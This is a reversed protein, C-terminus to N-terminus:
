GAATPTPTPLTATPAPMTVTPAPITTTPTPVTATPTPVTATPTPVTATPTPVTATPEPLSPLKVTIRRAAFVEAADEGEGVTEVRGWVTMSADEPLPDPLCEQPTGECTVAGSPGVVRIVNTPSIPVTDTAATYQYDRVIRNGKWVTVALNGEADIEPKGALMFPNVGNNSKLAHKASQLVKRQWQALRKSAGTYRM